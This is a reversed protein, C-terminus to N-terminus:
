PRATRRAARMRLRHRTSERTLERLADKGVWRSAADPAQALRGAVIVAAANLVLNRKGIQRLAWNVAKRVFNREDRATAEVLSLVSLFRADPAAKDHVALSALLAFGARRVFEPRRRSWAEVKRWALPSRSFLHLCVSDCVAWNDFDRCWRDMQGSTLRAPEAVFSALIRAELWGSEWLALALEHDRGPRKVLPAMTASSVGYAKAATIGFRAMGARNRASGRRELWALTTRVNEACKRADSKM